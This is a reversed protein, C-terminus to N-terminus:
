LRQLTIEQKLLFNLWVNPFGSSTNSIKPKVRQLLKYRIFFNLGVEDLVCHAKILFVLGSVKNSSILIRQKLNKLFM